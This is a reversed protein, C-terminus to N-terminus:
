PALGVGEKPPNPSLHMVGSTGRANQSLGSVSCGLEMRIEHHSICSVRAIFETGMDMPLISRFGNDLGLASMLLGECSFGRLEFDEVVLPDGNFSYEAAQLFM